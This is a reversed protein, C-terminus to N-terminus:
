TELFGLFETSENFDINMEEFDVRSNEKDAFIDDKINDIKKFFM